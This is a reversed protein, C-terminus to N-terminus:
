GNEGEGMLEQPTCIEPCAHGNKFCINRILPKMEANDLHRFNWTLLYDNGYVAAVAIHLSDDLAKGPLAGERLLAKSLSRVEESLALIPIGALSELRRAAAETQGRAAEELVLDSTYLEFRNRRTEWWDVTAKQWASALLDSSPRATLYSIVSTEIYVSKKDV